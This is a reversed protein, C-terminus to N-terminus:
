KKILQRSPQGRAMYGLKRGLQIELTSKFDDTGLPMSYHAATRISRIDDQTPSDTFIERYHCCRQAATSGLEMYNSHPTLGTDEAGRANYHFSSWRYDAPRGVMGARVPNLEIYRYCTLLYRDTEVISAKHRGEWLTGTRGYKKNMLQAYRSGLVQMLKSIGPLDRQTILLHVHNTMLCYAHLANAYRHATEGMLQLYTQYDEDEFFCPKRNNGRQVVHYTYGSLYMRKRRSM